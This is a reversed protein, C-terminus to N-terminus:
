FGIQIPEGWEKPELNFQGKQERLNKKKIVLVEPIKRGPPLMLLKLM